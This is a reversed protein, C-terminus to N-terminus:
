RKDELHKKGTLQVYFHRHKKLHMQRQACSLNVDHCGQPLSFFMHFLIAIVSLFFCMHEIKAWLRVPSNRPGPVVAVELQHSSFFRLQGVTAQHLKSHNKPHIKMVVKRLFSGWSGFFVYKQYGTWKWTCSVNSNCHIIM